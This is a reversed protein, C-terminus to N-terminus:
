EPIKGGECGPRKLDRNKPCLSVLHRWDILDIPEYLYDSREQFNPEVTTEYKM